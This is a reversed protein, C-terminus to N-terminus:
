FGIKEMFLVSRSEELDINPIIKLLSDGVEQILNEPLPITYIPLFHKSTLILLKGDPNGRKIHFGKITKWEYSDKGITLGETKVSFTIEQPHRLTFLILCAGSILIFIAFIYNGFWIAIIAGVLAILGISWFWDMTREKHSYEPASWEIPNIVIEEM